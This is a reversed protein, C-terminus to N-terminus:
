EKQTILVGEYRRRNAARHNQDWNKTERITRTNTRPIATPKLENKTERSPSLTRELHVVIQPLINASEFVVLEDYRADDIRKPPRYDTTFEKDTVPSVPIYHCQYNNHNGRGYFRFDEPKKDHRADCSIVPFPNLVLVYCMLLCPNEGQCYRSAYQASSSFYMGKGFWGDDLVELSAFGDALLKPLVKKDCGHWVRVINAIRNHDVQKYLRELRKLVIKREAMDKECDWNPQFIQEKMHREVFEIQERFHNFKKRNQIIEIKKIKFGNELSGVWKKVSHFITSHLPNQESLECSYVKAGNDHQNKKLYKQDIPLDFDGQFEKDRRKQKHRRVILYGTVGLLVPVSIGAMVIGVILGILNPKSSLPKLSTSGDFSSATKIATSTTSIENTFDDLSTVISIATSTTSIENIFDDLSTIISMATSMTSMENTFDDLSTIISIAIPTTSIENTFDGFSSTTNIVTSRTSIKDTSDDFSFVSNSETSMTPIKNTSGDFSSATSIATSTTSIENTFDDLSTVISMATSTTSMENTFDHLSTIISIATPTTSIENTFDGFSSTTSIVTSTTSIKDTSDGLSFVSSIETSM